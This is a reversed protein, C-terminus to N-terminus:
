FTMETTRIQCVTRITTAAQGTFTVALGGNTTDATVAITWTAAGVDAYMSTVTSGVLVTTGVGAGRKIVGEIYWGKTNGGSTVGAVVEGRFYYASNNPLIVQNTGSAANADSTLVTATADTTQRALVLLAAQTIGLTGSIPSSCAPMAQMGTIGRVTGYSGGVIASAAGSANNNNGGGVFSYNNATTNSSGGVTTSAYGNAQNAYGAGVFSSAGSSTNGSAGGGFSGGGGIFSAEGSAINKWGGAVTSWAGSAVNRNAATGADGGGGIFSYSGTAQNNGGGVVVGHPTFFSLTSTSSGNANQSLTLSTGSIAAVYTESGISTGTIFQGVKINANSASLTVATTGNMTGSQTTVAATATGSNTYGGGIFNFEGTATNGRGTVVGARAGAVTNSQGSGNFSVSGSVTNNLGGGNFAWFNSVNNGNGGSVVSQSGSATNNLGGSIVASSGAVMSAASRSTQWDVANAGRANITTGGDSAQAVLAGTGKPTLALDINPDTGQASFYPASGANNSTAQLYNVSNSGSDNALFATRQTGGGRTQLVVSFGGKAVLNLNMGADSGQASITPAGGTAAGTVQVYNVASATHTIVFQNQTRKGNTAFWISNTRSYIDLAETGGTGIGPSSSGALGGTIELYRNAAPVDIVRAQEGGPTYFSLSSGLTQIKPTSGVTAYAAAGSGGGGSFTVTPQEVYGSGANTITLSYVWWTLLNFTAGTGTGGTVSAPSTPLVSYIGNNPGNTVATIVGGSVASVTVQAAATQTGGVITLIDGVTYGTGGSAVSETVLFMNASATAQVGGATTPATIAVSPVGTYGSGFATRTLATVTGGNSINVGSSGAALDIAGTGKPQIALSINSDSGAVSHIPAFGTASGTITQYNVANTTHSVRAQEQGINNTYFRINGTGASTEYLSGDSQLGISNVGSFNISPYGLVQSITTNVYNSVTAGTNVQAGYIYFTGLSNWDLEFYGTGSSTAVASYICRYWGNGVNVISCGTGTVTGTSLNFFVSTFSNAAYPHFYFGTASGAKAYISFTYTVGNVITLPQDIFYNSVTTTLLSANTGGFPDTQGTTITYNYNNWISTFINSNLLLNQGTGTINASQATLTTFTGAAPTTGGIAPPSSLDLTGGLTLNGSSTVTGSLSIGNVTGTGGVSTVTGGSSPSTNTITFNPYTGSTSIGTGATLVVTQDPATNTINLTGSSTIPSGTVSIGTGATAAVSTVTGTNNTYGSPNSAPYAGLNTLAGAATSAGTGGRNVAVAAGNWTASTISGPYDLTNTSWSVNSPTFDHKDWSGAAISNSLLDVRTIGGSPVSVILTNSNNNVTVAGSSQNNDFEFIAGNVLTTADPLKVVQGGSGTFTYRRASAATLTIQTGSAAINIYADDFANASVNQNADRLVVSNAGSSATVGTGGNAVAIVATKEVKDTNLNTFNADVEAWELPSGKAARTIITSM